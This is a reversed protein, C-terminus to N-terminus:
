LRLQLFVGFLTVRYNVPGADLYVRNGVVLGQDLGAYHWDSIRVLEHRAQLRLAVRPSLPLRLGADFARLEHRMDAFGDGAEAALGPSQLAAASAFDYSQPLRSAVQTYQLEVRARGLDHRLGLGFSTSRERSTASWALAEPYISRPAGFSNSCSPPLSFCGASFASGLDAAGHQQLRARQLSAYANLTTSTSPLYGLDLNLGQSTQEGSRGFEAPYTASRAQVSLGLDLDPRPMLNVRLRAIQQRRDALDFKRLEELNHLRDLLNGRTVTYDPLSETYFERYPNSVYESGSRRSQELSLRLTLAEFGRDTYGLKIRDEWTQERERHARQWRERELEATLLARRRVRWDAALRANDQAGEFPINRVHVNNSGDYVRSANTDQIIYGYQQTLPNFATYRTGNHTEHRRLTARLTLRDLPALSLGLDVLRTDIRAHAREQALAATTNWRDFDGDFGSGFAAGIGSTITPPILRDNQRQAGLEVLATFRGRWLDPLARAFEVRASYAENDPALDARGGLIRLAGAPHQFPNDWSLTDIANRFLSAALALNFQTLADAYQLAARLDHTRQDVPEVLDGNGENGGFARSGRRREIAYSSSLTWGEALRMEVRAAGSRRRVGLEREPSREVLARVAAANAANNTSAGGPAVGPAPTLTLQGSGIDQWMPRASTSTLHPVESFGLQVRWDNSRGFQLGLYPDDHGIGGGVVEVFRASATQHAQADFRQLTVGNGVNRYGRFLANREGHDGLRVGAEAFGTVTWGSATPVGSRRLPPLEYLQGTPSRSAPARYPSLSTGDREGDGIITAPNAAGAPALPSVVGTDAAAPPSGLCAAALLPLPAHRLRM